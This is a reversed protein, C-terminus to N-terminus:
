IEEKKPKRYPYLFKTKNLIQEISLKADLMALAQKYAISAINSSDQPSTPPRNAIIGNMVDIAVKDLFEENDKLVQLM